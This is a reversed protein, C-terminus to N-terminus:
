WKDEWRIVPMHVLGANGGLGLAKRRKVASTREFSRKIRNHPLNRSRVVVLDLNPVDACLAWMVFDLLLRGGEDGTRYPHDEIIIERLYDHKFMYEGTFARHTTVNLRTIHPAYRQLIIAESLNTSSSIGLHQLHFGKHGLFTMWGGVKGRIDLYRLRPLHRRRRLLQLFTGFEVLAGPIHAPVGVDLGLALHTVQPFRVSNDDNILYQGLNPSDDSSFTAIELYTLKPLHASVTLLDVVTPAHTTTNLVLKVLNTCSKIGDLFEPPLQLPFHPPVLGRYEIKATRLSLSKANLCLDIVRLAPLFNNSRELALDVSRGFMPKGVLYRLSPHRLRRLLERTSRAGSCRISEFAFRRVVKAFERGVMALNALSEYIAVDDEFDM